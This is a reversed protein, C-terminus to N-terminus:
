HGIPGLFAPALVFHPGAALAATPWALLGAAALLAARTAVRRSPMTGVRAGRPCRRPDAHDRRDGPVALGAGAPKGVGDLWRDAGSGARARDLCALDLEASADARAGRVCGRWVSGCGTPGGGEARVAARGVVGCLRARDSGYGGAALDADCDEM